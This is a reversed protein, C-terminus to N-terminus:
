GGANEGAVRAWGERALPINMRDKTQFHKVALRRSGAAGYHELAAERNGLLEHARGRLLEDFTRWGVPMVGAPFGADLIALARAGDDEHLALAADVLAEGAHEFWHDPEPYPPYRDRVDAALDTWGLFAAQTALNVRTLYRDPDAFGEAPIAEVTAALRARAAATDGLLLHASTLAQGVHAVNRFRGAARYDEFAETLPVVALDPRELGIYVSGCFERDDMGLPSPAESSLLRICIRDVGELDDHAFAYVMSFRHHHEEFGADVARSALELADDDHGLALSMLGATITFHGMNPNLELAQLFSERAGEWDGLWNLRTVGLNWHARFDAPFRFLIRDYVDVAREPEFEVESAHMADIHWREQDTLRDRHEAARQTHERVRAYDLSGTAVAAALRHATGFAPDIQVAETLLRVARDPDTYRTREAEAYLRLAELSETTVVPLPHSEALSGAAEGLRRRMERSLREVGSLLGREGATVRASFLEEGTAPDLGRGAFVYRSGARVLTVEVVAGAGAREALEFAVDGQIPTDHPLGMLELLMATRSGGAVQVFGSQQLDIALAERTALALEALAEPAVFDALIVEGMPEFRGGAFGQAEVLRPAQWAVVMGAVFFLALVAGGGWLFRRRGPGRLVDAVAPAPEVAERLRRALERGTQIRAEPDRALAQRLVTDLSPPLEPRAVLASAPRGARIRDIVAKRDEADFPHEGTLMEHLVLGLAWLDSRGDAPGGDLEEPSMYAPTGGRSGSGSAGREALAIGFDVVQVRGSADFVLNEPKVDRHVIGARHAADLADAVQVAIRVAQDVPLPGEQLRERLTGGEYWAMAIFSRGGVDQDVEYVTGICPHELASAARAEDLLRLEGDLRPPLFKLAVHRDLVPDHALFVAGMGGRGLPRVVRYRGVVDDPRPEWERETDGSSSRPGAEARAWQVLGVAGGGELGEGLEAVPDEGAEVAAHARLLRRVRALLQADGEAAMELWADREPGPEREIAERFLDEVGDLDFM